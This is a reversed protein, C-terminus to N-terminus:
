LRMSLTPGYVTHHTHFAHPAHVTPYQPQPWHLDVRQINYMCDTLMGYRVM